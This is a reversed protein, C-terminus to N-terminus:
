GETAKKSMELILFVYEIGFQRQIDEFYIKDVSYDIKKFQGPIALASGLSQILGSVLAKELYRIEIDRLKKKKKLGLFIASVWSSLSLEETWIILKKSAEQM